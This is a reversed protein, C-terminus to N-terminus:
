NGIAYLGPIAEGDQSVVQAHENTLLGGKTGIDGADLRMAYYPGKTLPALCPNPKVNSDGYYCDFVNGGRGFDADVGSRAYENMRTVTQELGQSDVGIQAALASLSDAKFYLANLWE